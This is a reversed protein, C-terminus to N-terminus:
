LCDGIFVCDGVGPCLVELPRVARTSAYMIGCEAAIECGWVTVQVCRAM